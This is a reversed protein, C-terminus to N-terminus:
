VLMYESGYYQRICESQNLIKCLEEAQLANFRKFYFFDFQYSSTNLLTVHM